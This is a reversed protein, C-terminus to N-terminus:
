DTHVKHYKDLIDIMQQHIKDLESAFTKIRQAVDDPIMIM